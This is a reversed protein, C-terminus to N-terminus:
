KRVPIPKHYYPLNQPGHGFPQKNGTKAAGNNPGININDFWNVDPEMPIPTILSAAADDVDIEPIVRSLVFQARPLVDPENVRGRQGWDVMYNTDSTGTVAVDRLIGYRYQMMLEEFLM